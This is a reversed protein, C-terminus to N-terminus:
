DLTLTEPMEFPLSMLVRNSHILPRYDLQQFLESPVISSISAYEEDTLYERKMTELSKWFYGYDKEVRYNSLENEERYGKLFESVEESELVRYRIFLEPPIDDLCSHENILKTAKVPGLRPIGKINDTSDGTLAKWDLFQTIAVGTKDAISEPTIVEQVNSIRLTKGEPLEWAYLQHLDSDGSFIVIDEVEDDEFAELVKEAILDDAEKYDDYVGKWGKRPHMPNISWKGFDERLDHIEYSEADYISSDPLVARNGKYASDILGRRQRAKIGDYCVFVESNGYKPSVRLQSMRLDLYKFDNFVTKRCAQVFMYANPKKSRVIWKQHARRMAGKPSWHRANRGVFWGADILVLRPKGV